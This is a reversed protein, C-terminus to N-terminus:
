GEPAQDFDIDVLLIDRRGGPAAALIPSVEHEVRRDDVVVTDLTAQMTTVLFPVDEGPRYVSSTGGTCDHRGMLHMAIWAHGDSHRGEPAPAVGQDGDALVRILHLGVVARRPGGEVRAVLDLDHGVLALLAPSALTQPRVPAFRRAKGQYLPILEAAQQFAEDPLAALRHRGGAGTAGAGAEPTALLRGYRRQRWAGRDALHEDRPLDDWAARLAALAQGDQDAGRLQGLLEAGPLVAAAQGALLDEVDALSPRTM